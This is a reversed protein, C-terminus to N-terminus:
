AQGQRVKQQRTLGPPADERSFCSGIILSFTTCLAPFLMALLRRAVALPTVLRQAPVASPDIQRGTCTQSLDDTTYTMAAAMM